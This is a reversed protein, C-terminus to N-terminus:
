PVPEAARRVDGAFHCAAWHRDRWPTLGPTEVMCRTEARPCRPHFPCGSPLHLLNPITGRIPRLPELRAGPKPIADMLGVTYPHLSFDFVDYKDGLEVIRGAYMVAIRDSVRAVVGLDHSIFIMAM